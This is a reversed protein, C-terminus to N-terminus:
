GLGLWFLANELETFIEVQTRLAPYNAKLKDALQFAILTRFSDEPVVHALKELSSHALLSGGEEAVWKQDSAQAYNLRRTDSLWYRLKRQNVEALAATFGAQFATGSNHRKWFLHIFSIESYIRIGVDENGWEFDCIYHHLPMTNIM